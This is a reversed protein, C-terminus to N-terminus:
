LDPMEWLYLNTLSCIKRGNGKKKARASKLITATKTTQRVQSSNYKFKTIM